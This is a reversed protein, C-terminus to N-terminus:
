QIAPAQTTATCTRRTGTLLVAAHVITTFPSSRIKGYLFRLGNLYRLTEVVSSASDASCSM